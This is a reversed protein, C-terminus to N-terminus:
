VKLGESDNKGEDEVGLGTKEPPHSPSQWVWGKTM